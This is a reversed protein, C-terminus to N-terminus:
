KSWRDSRCRPLSVVEGHRKRRTIPAAQVSVAVGRRQVDDAGVARPEGTVVVVRAFQADCCVLDPTQQSVVLTVWERAVFPCENVM